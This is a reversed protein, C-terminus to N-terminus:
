HAATRQPTRSRQWAARHCTRYSEGQAPPCDTISELGFLPFSNHWVAAQFVGENGWDAHVADELERESADPNVILIQRRIQAQYAKQYNREVSQYKDLESKFYTKLSALQTKKTMRTNDTTNVLDRELRKVEDKIATHRIQTQSVYQELQEKTKGDANALNRQHLQDIYNLNTDLSDIDNRLQKIQSLFEQQSLM